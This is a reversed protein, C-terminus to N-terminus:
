RAKRGRRPKPDETRAPKSLPDAVDKAPVGDDSIPKGDVMRVHVVRIGATRMAAIQHAVEAGATGVMSGDWRGTMGDLGNGEVLDHGYLYVVAPKASAAACLACTTSYRGDEIGISDLAFWRGTPITAAFRRRTIRGLDGGIGVAGQFKDVAFGDNCLQWHCAIRRAAENVGIIQAQQPLPIADVEALLHAGPNLIVYAQALPLVAAETPPDALNLCSDQGIIQAGSAEYARAIGPYMPAAVHGWGSEPRSSDRWLSGDRMAVQTWGESQLSARLHFPDQSPHFYCLIRRMATM